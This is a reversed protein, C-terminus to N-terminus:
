RSINRITVNLQALLDNQVINSDLIDIYELNNLKEIHEMNNLDTHVKEVPELPQTPLLPVMSGDSIIKKLILPQAEDMERLNIKKSYEEILKASKDLLAAKQNLLRECERLSAAGNLMRATLSHYVATLNEDDEHDTSNKLEDNNKLLKFQDETDTLYYLNDFGSHVILIAKTSFKNLISRGQVLLYTDTDSAVILDLGESDLCVFEIRRPIRNVQLVQDVKNFKISIIEGSKTGIWVSDLEYETGYLLSDEISELDISEIQITSIINVLYNPLNVTFDLRRLTAEKGSIDAYGIRIESEEAHNRVSHVIVIGEYLNGIGFIRSSQISFNPFLTNELRSIKWIEIDIGQQIEGFTDINSLPEKARFLSVIPGHILAIEQIALNGELINKTYMEYTVETDLLNIKLLVLLNEVDSNMQTGLIYVFESGSSVDSLIKATIIRNINQVLLCPLFELDVSDQKEISAIRGKSLTLDNKQHTIKVVCEEIILYIPIKESQSFPYTPHLM